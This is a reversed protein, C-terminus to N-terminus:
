LFRQIRRRLIYDICKEEVKLACRWSSQLISIDMNNCRSYFMAQFNKTRARPFNGRTEIIKILRVQCNENEKNRFIREKSGHFVIISNKCLGRVVNLFNRVIFRRIFFIEYPATNWSSMIYRKLIWSAKRKM